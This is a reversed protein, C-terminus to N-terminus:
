AKRGARRRRKAMRDCERNLAAATDLAGRQHAKVWRCHISLRHTAALERIKRQLGRARQGRAPPTGEGALRLADRSDSVVVVERVADGWTRVSLYVAAYIASLEALTSDRVWPPCLGEQVIRGAESHVFVAWAGGERESWSADTYCTVRM